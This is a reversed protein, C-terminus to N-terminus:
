TANASPPSSPYGDDGKEQFHLLAARLKVTNDTNQNTSQYPEINQRATIKTLEAM